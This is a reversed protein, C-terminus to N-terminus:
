EEPEEPTPPVWTEEERKVNLRWELEEIQKEFSTIAFSSTPPDFLLRVKLFVYSKVPNLKKDGVLLDDWEDSNDVIQYGEPPGIGLQTVTSLAGNIYDIIQSDFVDYDSALGLKEKTSDLISTTM